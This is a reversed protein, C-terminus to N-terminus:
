DIRITARVSLKDELALTVLGLPIWGLRRARRVVSRRRLGILKRSQKPLDLASNSINTGLNGTTHSGRNVWLIDLITVLVRSGDVAKSAESRGPCVVIHFPIHVAATIEM